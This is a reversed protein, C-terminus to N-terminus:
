SSWVHFRPHPLRLSWHDRSIRSREFRAWTEVRRGAPRMWIPHLIIYILRSSVVAPAAPALFGPLCRSSRSAPCLFASAGFVFVFWAHFSPGGCIVNNACYNTTKTEKLHPGTLSHIPFLISILVARSKLLRVVSLLNWQMGLKKREKEWAKM